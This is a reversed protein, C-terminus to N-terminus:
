RLRFIEVTGDFGNETGVYTTQDVWSLTRLYGLYESVTYGCGLKTAGSTSISSGTIGGLLAQQTNSFRYIEVVLYVPKGNDPLQELQETYQESEDALMAFYSDAYQLTNAWYTLQWDYTTVLVVNSDAVISADSQDYDASRPFLYNCGTTLLNLTLLGVSIAVLITSAIARSLWAPKFPIRKLVWWVCWVGILWVYPMLFALYRDTMEKMGDVNSFKAVLLVCALMAVGIVLLFWFRNKPEHATRKFKRGIRKFFEAVHHRGQKFWGAKRFLFCFAAFVVVVFLGVFGIWTLHVLYDTFVDIGLTEQTLISLCYMFYYDLGNVHGYASSQNSLAVFMSSCILLMAAAGIAVSFGYRLMTSIRRQVILSICTGVAVVLAFLLFYVNTMAAAFTVILIAVLTGGCHEFDRDVLRLHLAVFALTLCTLLAYPRLYVFCNLAGTCFGYCGVVLLALWPSKFLRKGLFFLLLQTGIFAVFNIAYAYWWSFTDPFFSCITNLIISHLPPSLDYQQNYLVSGYDFQEGDQVTMYDHIREASEWSNFGETASANSWDAETEHNEPADRYLYGDYSDNAFGYSWSEDSHYGERTQFIDTIYFLQASIVLALLVYAIWAHSKHPKRAHRPVALSDPLEDDGADLVEAVHGAAEALHPESADARPAAYPTAVHLPEEPQERSTDPIDQENKM